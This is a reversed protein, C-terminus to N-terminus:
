RLHSLLQIMSDVLCTAHIMRDGAWTKVKLHAAKEYLLTTVATVKNLPQFGGVSVSNWVPLVDCTATESVGDFAM